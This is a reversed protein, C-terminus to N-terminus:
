KKRDLIVKVHTNIRMQYNFDLKVRKRKYPLIYHKCYKLKFGHASLYEALWRVNGSFYDEGRETAWNEKYTYKLFFEYLKKVNVGNNLTPRYIDNFIRHENVSLLNLNNSIFNTAKKKERNLRYNSCQFYMDRIVVTDAYREAFNAIDLRTGQEVEHMVSSLILLVRKGRLENVFTSLLFAHFYQRNYNYPQEIDSKKEVNFLQIKKHKDKKRKTLYKDIEYLLHGNAGGFDVVCDYKNWDIKNLFFLKEKRTMSKDLREVYGKVDQM